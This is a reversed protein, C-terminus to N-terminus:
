PKNKLFRIHIVQKAKKYKFVLTKIAKTPKAILRIEIQSSSSAIQKWMAFVSFNMRMLPFTPGDSHKELITTKTQVKLLRGHKKHDGQFFM